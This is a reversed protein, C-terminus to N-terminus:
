ENDSSPVAGKTDNDAKASSHPEEFETRCEEALFDSLDVKLAKLPAGNNKRNEPEKKGSQIALIDAILEDKTKSTPSKVGIQRGLERIVSFHANYLEEATLKKFQM